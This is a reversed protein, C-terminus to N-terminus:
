DENRENTIHSLDPFEKRGAGYVEFTETDFVEYWDNYNGTRKKIDEYEEIDFTCIIDGMGGSPYYTEFGFLVFRKKEIM